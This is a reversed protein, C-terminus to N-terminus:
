FCFLSHLYGPTVAWITVATVRKLRPGSKACGWYFQCWLKWMALWFKLLPFFQVFFVTPSAVLSPSHLKLFGPPVDFLIRDILASQRKMLKRWTFNVKFRFLLIKAELAKMLLDSWSFITRPLLSRGQRWHILSDSSGAELSCLLLLIVYSINLEIAQSKSSPKSIFFYFVFPLLHM